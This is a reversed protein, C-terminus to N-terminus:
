DTKLSQSVPTWAWELFAVSGAEPTGQNTYLSQSRFGGVWQMRVLTLKRVARIQISPNLSSFTPWRRLSSPPQIDSNGQDTHPNLRHAGGCKLFVYALMTPIARIQVSPKFCSIASTLGAASPWPTQPTRVARLQISPNLRFGECRLCPSSTPGQDTNLSQSLCQFATTDQM